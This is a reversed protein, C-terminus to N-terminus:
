DIVQLQVPFRTKGDCCRQRNQLCHKMRRLLVIAINIRDLVICSRALDPAFGPPRNQPDRREQPDYKSGAWSGAAVNRDVTM